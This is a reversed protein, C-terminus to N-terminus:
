KLITIKDSNPKLYLKKNDFDFATIFNEFFHNGIIGVYKDSQKGFLKLAVIYENSLIINKINIKNPKIIALNVRHNPTFKNTDKLIMRDSKKIFLEVKNSNRNVFFANPAGLDLLFRGRLTEKTQLSDFISLNSEFYLGKTGKDYKVNFQLYGSFNETYNDVIMYNDKINITTIGSLDCLPFVMDRNKWSKNSSFDSVLADIIYKKGNFILTDKIIYSVKNKEGGWLAIQTNPPAKKMDVIQKLHKNAFSENIVIKPFGTELMVKTSISDNLKWDSFLHGYEFLLPLKIEQAIITSHCLFIFKSLIIIIKRNM